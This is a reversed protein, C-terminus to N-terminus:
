ESTPRTKIDSYWPALETTAPIPRGNEDLEVFRRHWEPNRRCREQVEKDLERLLCLAGGLEPETRKACEDCLQNWDGEQFIAYGGGSPDVFNVGCIPCDGNEEPYSETPKICAGLDPSWDGGLKKARRRQELDIVDDVM